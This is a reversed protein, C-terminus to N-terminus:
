SGDGIEETGGLIWESVVAFVFEFADWTSPCEESDVGSAVVCSNEVGRPGACRGAARGLVGPDHCREFAVPLCGAMVDGSPLDDSHRRAPRPASVRHLHALWTTLLRFCTLRCPTRYEIQAPAQWVAPSSKRKVSSAALSPMLKPSPAVTRLGDIGLEQATRRAGSGSRRALPVRPRGRLRRVHRTTRRDRSSAPVRRVHM